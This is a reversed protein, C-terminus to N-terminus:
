EGELAYGERVPFSPAEDYRLGPRDARYRAPLDSPDDQMLAQAIARGIAPGRMVGFGNMGVAVWVGEGGPVPGLLPRRDPTATCLGAWAAGLRADEGCRTRQVLREGVSRLFADDAREQFRDPDSEVHETGDGMLYRGARSEPVWYWGLDLDHFVASPLGSARAGVDVVVLQTRYPRVPLQVGRGRLVNPSHAGAAVLVRDFTRTSEDPLLVTVLGRDGNARGPGSPLALRVPTGAQVEGGVKRLATAAARAYDAGAVTGDGPVHLFTGSVDLRLAPFRQALRAGTGTEYLTGAADLLACSSDLRGPVATWTLSGTERVLAPGGGPPNRYLARSEEVWARDQEDWTVESSVGAARASSGEGVAGAEYLTVQAGLRALEWAASAGIVGAGIVCLRM